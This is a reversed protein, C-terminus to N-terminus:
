SLVAFKLTNAVGGNMNFTIFTLQSKSPQYPLYEYTQMYSKGGTPTLAFSLLACRNATDHSITAGSEGIIQEFLLPNLSYTFQSSFLTLPNSIRLRSFADLNASDKISVETDIINYGSYGQAM